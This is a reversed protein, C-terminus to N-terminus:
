LCYFQMQWITAWTSLKFSMIRRNKIKVVWTIQLAATTIVFKSNQYTKRAKFSKQWKFYALETFNGWISYEAFHFPTLLNM